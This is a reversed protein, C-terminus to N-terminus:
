IPSPGFGILGLGITWIKEIPSQGIGNSCDFYILVRM